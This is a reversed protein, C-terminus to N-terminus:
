SNNVHYRYSNWEPVFDLKTGRKCPLSDNCRLSVFNWTFRTRVLWKPANNGISVYASGTGTLEAVWRTGSRFRTGGKICSVPVSHPWIEYRYSFWLSSTGTHSTGIRCKTDTDHLCGRIQIDSSVQEAHTWCTDLQLTWPRQVREFVVPVVYIVHLPWWYVWSHERGHIACPSQIQPVQVIVGLHPSRWFKYVFVDLVFLFFLM